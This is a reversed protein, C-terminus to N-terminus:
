KTPSISGGCHHCTKEYWSLKGKCKTCRWKKDQEKLWEETKGIRFHKLAEKTDEGRQLCSSFLSEYGDCGKEFEPCEYCFDFGKEKLCARVRCKRCNQWLEEEPGLCGGCRIQSKPVGLEKSVSDLFEGGDKFARYVYCADCYIGCRSVLKPQTM